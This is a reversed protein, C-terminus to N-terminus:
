QRPQSTGGPPLLKVAITNSYVRGTSQANPDAGIPSKWVRITYTGPRDFDFDDSLVATTETNEGPQLEGRLRNGPLTDPLRIKEGDPMVRYRPGFHQVFGGQENRIEYGYGEPMNGHYSASFVVRRNSINTMKIEISVDSGLVSVPHDASITIVLAQKGQSKQARVFPVQTLLISIVAVLPQRIAIM